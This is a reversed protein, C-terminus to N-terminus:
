RFSYLIKIKPMFYMQFAYSHVFVHVGGGGGVWVCLAGYFIYSVKVPKRSFVQTDVKAQSKSARCVFM